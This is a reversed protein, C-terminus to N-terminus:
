STPEHSLSPPVQWMYSGENVQPPLHSQPMHGGIPGMPSGMMGQQQRGNATDIMM